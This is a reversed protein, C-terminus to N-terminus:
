IVEIPVRIQGSMLKPLLADRIETLNRSELKININKNIIPSLTKDMRDLTVGDPVLVISNKLHKRQIHGMTTAKGEAIHRYEPLYHIIWYYFLWKPHKESTVKFLHQNLAGKGYGWIVVELSGSWSFLIDGDDVLYDRPIDVSAKDTSDTIGQKLERIKIVPLYENESQSPYKQMALGNLFDAIEDIPKVEWDKPIEKGLKESYVMEGGSSKYPKREENPFEFDIFWHKFLAQGITELTKNMHQNLEIKSDLDSLIKAIESQENINPIPLDIKEFNKLIIRPIVAGSVYNRTVREKTFPDSFLYKIFQSTVKKLDPRIIAISSLIVIEEERNIVFVHKLYSGDKAILVDNIKPKCDQKVLKNFDDESIKRCSKYNFGYDAMDKVTAILKGNPKTKPSFHSGDTIKICVEKLKVIEWDEPVMGIETQKLKQKTQQKMNVM